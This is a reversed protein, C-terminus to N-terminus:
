AHGKVERKLVSCIECACHRRHEKNESSKFFISLFHFKEDVSPLMVVSRIRFVRGFGYFFGDPSAKMTGTMHNNLM